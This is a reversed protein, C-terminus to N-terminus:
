ILSKHLLSSSREALYNQTFPDNSLDTIKGGLRRSYGNLYSQSQYKLVEPIFESLNQSFQETTHTKQLHQRGKEAIETYPNQDSEFFHNFHRHISAVEDDPDVFLVCDEPQNAFWGACTVMAATQNAWIRLLSGSAEGNTPYRLSVAIDAANLLHDLKDFSVFGHYKVQQNLEYQKAVQKVDFDYDIKGCIDLQIQHKLPHTGIAQIVSELRRNPGGIYGFIILRLVKDAGQSAAQTPEKLETVQSLYPLPTYLVPAHTREALYEVIAENHTIIGSANELALRSFPIKQAIEDITIEQRILQRGMSEGEEGYYYKLHKLYLYDGEPQQRFYSEFFHHLNYDHLIVIGSHMQSLQYIQKHFAGNNGFNYLTVASRNLTQWNLKEPHFHQIKASDDLSKDHQNQDTLLTVEFQKKLAPILRVTYNAIDTKAPPLPSVWNIKM